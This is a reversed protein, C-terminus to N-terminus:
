STQFMDLFSAHFVSGLFLRDFRQTIGVFDGAKMRYRLNVAVVAEIMGREHYRQM